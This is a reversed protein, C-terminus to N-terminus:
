GNAIVGLLEKTFNVYDRAANSNSYNEFLSRNVIETPNGNEDLRPKLSQAKKVDQSVRIISDFNRFGYQEALVPLGDKLDEDLGNRSDFRTILTGYIELNPNLQKKISQITTLLEGLGDISYQEAQLPIVCGDAATLANIMYIGLTPPTDMIIFDYDDAVEQLKVKLLDERRMMSNFHDVQSSLIRDGPIIDGMPMHQIAESTSCSDDLVDVISYEDEYKAGFTKTTNCQADLDVILVKYNFHILADTLNIATTTKGVGGKQNSIAIKIASM